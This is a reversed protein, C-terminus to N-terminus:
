FLRTQVHGEYCWPDDAPHYVGLKATRKLITRDQVVLTGKHVPQGYEIETRQWKDRRTAWLREERSAAVLPIEYYELQTSGDARVTGVLYNFGYRFICGHSIQIPASEGRQIVTTDHVEGSFYFDAGCEDLVRYFPSRRGEPVHLNGSALSRYPAMIPVHGQVIVTRGARKARTITQRLWTLQPGFVGMRVGKSTRTFTDVTVLTLHPGLDVAYATGEAASGVPRDAFRHTGDATRTFHDAWVKKCHPVLYYRNDPQGKKVGDVLHGSPSWRDNVDHSGRDDLIEHDGLAPYLTLGRSAFLDRYYGYYVGGARSIADRCARLSAADTGQSVRGFLRRDESDENWHGEVLDGAVLVADPEHAKLAGLCTDIAAEWSANVSNLGGDWNPLVSLDAVDGNFFDPTSVFTFLPATADPTRAVATTGSTALASTPTAAGATAAAAGATAGARILSRRSLM